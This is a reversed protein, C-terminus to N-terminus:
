VTIGITQWYYFHKGVFSGHLLDWILLASIIYIYYIFWYLIFFALILPLVKHCYSCIGLRNMFLVVVLLEILVLHWQLFSVLYISCLTIGLVPFHYGFLTISSMVGVIPKINWSFIVLKPSYISIFIWFLFNMLSLCFLPLILLWSWWISM